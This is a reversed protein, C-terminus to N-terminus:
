VNARLILRQALPVTQRGMFPLDPTMNVASGGVLAQFGMGALGSGVALCKGNPSVSCSFASGQKPFGQESITRLPTWNKTSWLVPQRDGFRALWFEGDPSLSLAQGPRCNNWSAPSGALKPGLSAPHSRAWSVTAHWESPVCRRFEAM